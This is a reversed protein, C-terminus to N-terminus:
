DVSQSLYGDLWLAQRATLLMLCHNAAPGGGTGGQWRVAEYSCAADRWAIWARQADRLAPAAPAAASGIQALESDAAKDAAQLQGYRDNLMADWQAWEQDLCDNMGYTSDGGEAEMCQGSARGICDEPAFDPQRGPEVALCAILISPDYALRDQAPAPGAALAAALSPALIALRGM